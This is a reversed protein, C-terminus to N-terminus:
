LMYIIHRQYQYTKRPSAERYQIYTQFLNMLFRKTIHWAGPHATNSNERHQFGVVQGREMRKMYLQKLVPNAGEGVYVPIPPM